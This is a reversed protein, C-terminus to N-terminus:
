GLRPINITIEPSQGGEDENVPIDKIEIPTPPFIIREAWGNVHGDDDMSTPLSLEYRMEQAKTDRYILFIWTARGFLKSSAVVIAPDDMFEFTRQNLRIYDKTRTGKSSRTSPYENERGTSEDGSSATIAVTKAQNLVLPQNTENKRTWGSSFLLERLSRNAAAWAATGPFTPPDNDTCAAFAAYSSEASTIFSYRNLGMGELRLDIDLEDIYMKTAAFM